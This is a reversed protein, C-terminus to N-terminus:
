ATLQVRSFIGANANQRVLVMLSLSLLISIWFCGHGALFEDGLDRCVDGLEVSVDASQRHELELAVGVSVPVAHERLPTIHPRLHLM